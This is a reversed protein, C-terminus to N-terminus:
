RATPALRASVPESASDASTRLLYTLPSMSGLFVTAAVYPIPSIGRDRADNWMWVGILSLAIALDFLVSIAALNATVGQLFGLMGYRYLVFANLATLDFLAIGLLVKKTM